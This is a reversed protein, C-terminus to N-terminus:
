SAPQVPRRYQLLDSREDPSASIANCLDPLTRLLSYNVVYM